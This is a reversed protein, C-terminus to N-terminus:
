WIPPLPIIGSMEPLASHRSAMNSMCHCPMTMSFDPITTAFLSLNYGEAAFTKALAAGIGRSAGTILVTKEM